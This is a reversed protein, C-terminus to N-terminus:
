DIRQNFRHNFKFVQQDCVDICRGCNSCEGAVIVPTGKGKLAPRIVQPEPCVKFCDMCDDCAARKTASVKLLSFRGVLAYFAGVPCWHGCWGRNVILLDYAFLGLMMLWSLGMGFLLGRQIGTVPNVWEWIVTHTLATLLMVMALLWYRSNRHAQQAGKLNLKGRCWHALDTILNVPCVWSCFVRGGLLLYFALVIAAGIMAQQQPRHGALTSQLLVMPDTLPLFGFSLSSALTGKVWWVGAVPGLLFLTLIAFQSIRRAILWRNKIFLTPLLSM